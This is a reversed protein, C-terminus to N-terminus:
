EEEAESATDDTPEDAEAAAEPTEDLSEDATAATEAEDAPEAPEPPEAADDAPDTVASDDPPAQPADADDLPEATEIATDAPPADADGPAAPLKEILQSLMSALNRPMAALLGATKALPAQLGGALRALLVERPDITALESIREPTLYDRGLLGGKIRFVEHDRAFDRLAKATSVADEDAFALGTPGLLLEDLETLELEAAARKALTMKVVRFEAGRERLGRRLAQQDKVSLGAYEALFVARANELREKIESVAAVKEPRPM